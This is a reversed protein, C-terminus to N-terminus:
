VDEFRLLTIRKWPKRLFRSCNIFPSHPVPSGLLFPPTLFKKSFLFLRLPRNNQFLYYLFEEKELDPM